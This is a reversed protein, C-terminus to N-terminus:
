GQTPAFATSGGTEEGTRGMGTLERYTLTWATSAFMEAVGLIAVAVLWALLGVGLTLAVSLLPLAFTILWAILLLALWVLLLPLGVVILLGAGILVLVLWVLALRGLQERLLEWARALSGRVDLAELVCARVALRQMVRTPISFLVALCSAPALCALELLRTSLDGLFVAEPQEQLLTMIRAVLSPLVGVVIVVGMPLGLLLRILFVRWFYRKGALWGGKLVVTGHEEAARIQNVLAARGLASALSLGVSVAFGLLVFAIVTATFDPGDLFDLIPTQVEPPLEQVVRDWQGASVGLPTSVMGLSVLFGFLWLAKDQWTIHWARRLAYGIEM